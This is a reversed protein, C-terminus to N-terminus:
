EEAMPLYKAHCATCTNYLEGGTQLLQDISKSEAANAVVAARETMALAFKVWDGNDKARGPMIMLNGAEAVAIARMRVSNWDEDTKPSQVLEGNSYVVADFIAQSSPIVISEMIDDISAVPKFGPSRNQASPASGGCRAVLLAGVAVLGLKAIRWRANLM